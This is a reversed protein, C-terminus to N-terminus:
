KRGLVKNFLLNLRQTLSEAKFAELGSRYGLRRAEAGYEYQKDACMADWLAKFQRDRAVRHLDTITAQPGEIAGESPRIRHKYKDIDIVNSM